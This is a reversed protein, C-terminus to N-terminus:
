INGFRMWEKGIVLHGRLVEVRGGMIFRNRLCLFAFSGASSCSAVDGPNLRFDDFFFATSSGLGSKSRDAASGGVSLKRVLRRIGLNDARNLMSFSCSSGSEISPFALSSLTKNGLRAERSLKNPWLGAMSASM